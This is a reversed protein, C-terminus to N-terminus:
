RAEGCEAWLLKGGRSAGWERLVSVGWYEDRGGWGGEAGEEAGQLRARVVASTGGSVEYCRRQGWPDGQGLSSKFEGSPCWDMLQIFQPFVGEARPRLPGHGGV